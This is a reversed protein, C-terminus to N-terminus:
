KTGNTQCSRRCIFWARPPSSARRPANSGQCQTRKPSSEIAASRRITRPGDTSIIWVYTLIYLPLCHCSWQKYSLSVCIKCVETLEAIKSTYYKSLSSNTNPGTADSMSTDMMTTMIHLRNQELKISSQNSFINEAEKQFHILTKPALFTHIASLFSSFISVLIQAKSVVKSISANPGLSTGKPASWWAEKLAQRAHKLTKVGSPRVVGKWQKKRKRRRKRASRRFRFYTCGGKEGEEESRKVERM